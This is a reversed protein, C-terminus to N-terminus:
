QTHLTVSHTINSATTCLTCVSLWVMRYCGMAILVCDRCSICAGRNVVGNDQM